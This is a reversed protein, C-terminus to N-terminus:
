SGNGTTLVVYCCYYQYYIFVIIYRVSAASNPNLPQTWIDYLRYKYLINSFEELLGYESVINHQENIQNNYIYKKLKHKTTSLSQQNIKSFIFVYM